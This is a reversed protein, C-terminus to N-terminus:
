HPFNLDTRQTDYPRNASFLSFNILPAKSPSSSFSPSWFTIDASFRSAWNWARLRNTAELAPKWAKVVNGFYPESRISKWLM